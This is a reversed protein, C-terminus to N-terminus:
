KQIATIELGMEIARRAGDDSSYNSMTKDKRM